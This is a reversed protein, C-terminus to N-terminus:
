SGRMGPASSIGTLAQVLSEQIYTLWNYVHHLGSRPDDDDYPESLADAVDDDDRIDLRSGITLRLDNLTGLWAQVEGDVLTLKEGSRTLSDTVTRANALKTDRLSRETYRRFETAAEEDDRYADPFLRALAPDDSREAAPDIGLMRALPDANAGWPDPEAPTIFETLQGVLDTLMAREVADFRATIRGTFGRHFGHLAM